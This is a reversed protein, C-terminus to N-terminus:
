GAMILRRSEAIDRARAVEVRSLSMASGPSVLRVMDGPSLEVNEGRGDWSTDPVVAVRGQPITVWGAHYLDVKEVGPYPTMGPSMALDGNPAAIFLWRGTRFQTTTTIM